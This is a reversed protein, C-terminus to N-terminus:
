NFLLLFNFFGFCWCFSTFSWSSISSSKNGDKSFAKNLFNISRMFMEEIMIVFNLHM